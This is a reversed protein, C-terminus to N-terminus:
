ILVRLAVNNWMLKLLKIRKELKCIVLTCAKVVKISEQLYYNLHINFDCM